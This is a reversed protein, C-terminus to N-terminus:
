KDRSFFFFCTEAPTFLGIDIVPMHVEKRLPKQVLAWRNEFPELYPVGAALKERVPGNMVENLKEESLMPLFPEDVRTNVM